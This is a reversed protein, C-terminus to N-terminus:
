LDVAGGNNIVKFFGLSDIYNLWCECVFQVCEYMYVWGVCVCMGKRMCEVTRGSNFM